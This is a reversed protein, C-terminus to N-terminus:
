TSAETALADEVSPVVTIMETLGTLQMSRLVARQAAVVVLRSGRDVCLDAYKVLESLGVSALFEVGSMDLVLPAPPALLAEAQSLHESLLPTTALDVDGVAHVVVANGRTELHVTLLPNQQADGDPGVPLDAM